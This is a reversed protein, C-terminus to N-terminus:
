REGKSRKFQPLALLGNRCSKKEEDLAESQRRALFDTSRGSRVQGIGSGSYAERIYSFCQMTLRLEITPYPHSASINSQKRLIRSAIFLFRRERAAVEIMTKTETSCTSSSRSDLSCIPTRFRWQRKTKMETESKEIVDSLISTL